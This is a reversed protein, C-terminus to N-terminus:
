ETERFWKDVTTREPQTIASHDVTFTPYLYQNQPKPFYPVNTQYTINAGLSDAITRPLPNLSLSPYLFQSRQVDWRPLSQQYNWRDFSVAEKQTLGRPEAFFSPYLHQNRQIDFRPISQQYNWKDFSVREKPTPLISVFAVFPMIAAASYMRAKQWHAEPTNTNPQWKDPTIREGFSTIRPEVRSQYQYLKPM